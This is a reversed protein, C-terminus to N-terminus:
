RNTPFGQARPAGVRVGDEVDEGLVRELAVAERDHVVGVIEVVLLHRGERALRPERLGAEHLRSLRLPGVVAVADERDSRLDGERSVRRQSRRDRHRKRSPLALRGVRLLRAGAQLRDVHPELVVPGPGRHELLRGLEAGLHVGPVDERGDAEDGPVGMAVKRWLDDRGPERSQDCRDRADRAHLVRLWVELQHVRQRARVIRRVEVEDTELASPLRPRPHERAEDLAPLVRRVPEAAPGSHAYRASRPCPVRTSIM